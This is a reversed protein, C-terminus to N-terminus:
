SFENIKGSKSIEINENEDKGLPVDENPINPLAELIHDLDKKILSQEKGIKEIELSIKKSKEFLSKDKLKSIDKKEKELNEKKQILDRNNNDLTEIKKIDLKVFRKKLSEDFDNFNKRIDKINHM